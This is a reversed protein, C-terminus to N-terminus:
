CTRARSVTPRRLHSVGDLCARRRDVKGGLEEFVECHLAKRGQRSLRPDKPHAHPRTVKACLFLAMLRGPRSELDPRRESWVREAIAPVALSHGRLTAADLGRPVIGRVEWDIMYFEPGTVNAWTLDAHAPRWEEVTTNTM